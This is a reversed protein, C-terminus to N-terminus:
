KLKETKEKAPDTWLIGHLCCESCSRNRATPAPPPWHVVAHGRWEASQGQDRSRCSRGRHYVPYPATILYLEYFTIFLWFKKFWSCYSLKILLSLEENRSIYDNLTCPIKFHTKIKIAMPLNQELQPYTCCFGCSYWWHLCLVISQMWWLERFPDCTLLTHYRAATLM